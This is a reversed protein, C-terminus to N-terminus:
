QVIGHTKYFISDANFKKLQRPHREPASNNRCLFLLHRPYLGRLFKSCKKLILVTSRFEAFTFRNINEQIWWLILSHPKTQHQHNIMHYLLSIKNVLYCITAPYQNINHLKLPYMNHISDKTFHNSQHSKIQNSWLPTEM